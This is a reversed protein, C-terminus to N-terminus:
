LFAPITGSYRCFSRTPGLRGRQDAGHVKSSPRRTTRPHDRPRRHRAFPMHIGDRWSPEEGPATVSAPFYGFLLAKKVPSYYANAERLAHPYVRLHEVFEVNKRLEAKKKEYDEKSIKGAKRESELEKLEDLRPSWLARRGLAQEFHEITTRAVAYAMQQHFQPNGESPPLGDQALLHKDSLDVPAYFAHSAPDYDVVEVYDDVPGIELSEQWPLKITVENIEHTEIGRSLLPDFAFARLRIHPPEDQPHTESRNRNLPRM